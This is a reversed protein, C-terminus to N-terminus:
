LYSLSTIQTKFIVVYFPKNFPFNIHSTICHAIMQIFPFLVCMCIQKYISLVHRSYYLVLFIIFYVLLSFINDPFFFLVEYHYFPWVKDLICLLGLTYVGLFWMFIDSAIVSLISFPFLCNRFRQYFHM